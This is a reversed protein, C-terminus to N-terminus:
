SVTDLDGESSFVVSLNQISPFKINNGVKNEGIIFFTVLLDVRITANFSSRVRNSVMHEM